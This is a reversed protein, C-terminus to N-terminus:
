PRASRRLCYSSTRGVATRQTRVFPWPQSPLPLEPREPFCRWQPRGPREVQPRQQILPFSKRILKRNDPIEGPIRFEMRCRISLVYAVERNSHVTLLPDIALRISIEEPHRGPSFESFNAGLIQRLAALYADDTRYANVGISRLVACGPRVQFHVRFVDLEQARGVSVRSRCGTGFGSRRRRGASEGCYFSIFQRESQQSGCECVAVYNASSRHPLVVYSYICEHCHTQWGSYTSEMGPLFSPRRVIGGISRDSQRSGRM